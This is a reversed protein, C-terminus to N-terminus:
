IGQAMLTFSSPHNAEDTVNQQNTGTRAMRAPSRVGNLKALNRKGCVVTDGAACSNSKASKKIKRMEFM